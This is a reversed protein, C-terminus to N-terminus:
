GSEAVLRESDAYGNIVTGNQLIITPTGQIGVLKGLEYQRAVPNDCEAPDVTGGAKAVTMAEASDKSCWVSVAEYYSESGVGARPFMLYRVQIGHSQLEPVELHFKQCYFCDTDTFVTVYKELPEGMMIMESEPIEQIVGAIRQNNREQGVNVQRMADFLDGVLLYDGQSYIYYEQSNMTVIYVNEAPAPEISEIAAGSTMGNLKEILQAEGDDSYSVTFSTLLFLSLALRIVM